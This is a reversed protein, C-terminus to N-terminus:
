RFVGAALDFPLFLGWMCEPGLIPPMVGPTHIVEAKAEPVHRFVDKRTISLKIVAVLLCVCLISLVGICGLLLKQIQHARPDRM